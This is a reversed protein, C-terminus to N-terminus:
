ESLFEGLRGILEDLDETGNDRMNVLEIYTDEVTQRCEEIAADAAEITKNYRAVLGDIDRRIDALKHLSQTASITFGIMGAVILAGIGLIIGIVIM